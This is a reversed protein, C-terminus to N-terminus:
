AANLIHNAASQGSLFAAEVRGKQCWDGVAIINQSADILADQMPAKTPRAYRWRHLSSFSIKRCDFQELQELAQILDNQAETSDAEMNDEAWQHSSIAVLSPAIQRNPKKHVQCIWRLPSDSVHAVDWDLEPFESFGLMLAFAGEYETQELQEKFATEQPLLAQTQPAPTALVVWDFPSPHTGQETEVVWGTNTRELKTVLCNRTIQDQAIFPAAIHKVFSNMRPAGVYTPDVMSSEKSRKEPWFHRAKPHWVQLANADLAPQIFDQFSQSHATFYQCGHDFEFCQAYRTALRGGIGRSKDFLHINAHQQLQSACSLGAIGAGIIAINPKKM